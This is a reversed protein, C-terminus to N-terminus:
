LYKKFKEDVYKIAEKDKQIAIKCIEVTQNKVFQLAYGDQEVAIRCIEETQNKVFELAWGDQAVAMKCIEDTQNEVYQLTICDNAVAIKCIEDTKNQVYQLAWGNEEVAIKCIKDTQNEVYQLVLGDQAVANICMAYTQYQVEEIGCNEDDIKQFFEEKEIIYIQEEDLVYMEDDLAEDVNGDYHEEALEQIDEYTYYEDSDMSILYYYKESDINYSTIKHLTKPLKLKETLAKCIKIIIEERSYEKKGIYEPMEEDWVMYAFKIIEYKENLVENLIEKKEIYYEVNGQPSKKGYLEFEM